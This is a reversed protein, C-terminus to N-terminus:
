QLYGLPSDDGPDRPIGLGLPKEDEESEPSRKFPPVYSDDDSSTSSESSTDGGDWNLGLSASEIKIEAPTTLKRRSIPAPQKKASASPVTPDGLGAFQDVLNWDSDAAWAVHTLRV